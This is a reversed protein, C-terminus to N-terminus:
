ILALVFIFYHDYKNMTVRLKKMSESVQNEVTRASIGENRAVDAYSLHDLKVAKFTTRMKIPLQEIAHYLLEFFYDNEKSVEEDEQIEFEALETLYVISRRKRLETIMSNRACTYLYPKVNKISYNNCWLKVFVDEIVDEILASDKTYFGLFHIIEDIYKNYYSEFQITDM